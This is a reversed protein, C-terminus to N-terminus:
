YKPNQPECALTPFIHVAPAVTEHGQGTSNAENDGSLESRALSLGTSGSVDLFEDTAGDADPILGPPAEVPSIQFSARRPKFVHGPDSPRRQGVKDRWLDDNVLFHGNTAQFLNVGPVGQQGRDPDSVTRFGPPLKITAVSPLRSLVQSVSRIRDRRQAQRRHRILVVFVVMLLLIIAELFSIFVMVDVNVHRPSILLIVLGLIAGIVDLAIKVYMIVLLEKIIGVLTVVNIVFALIDLILIYIIGLSINNLFYFTLLFCNKVLFRKNWEKSYM